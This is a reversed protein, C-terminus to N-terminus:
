DLDDLRVFVGIEIGYGNILGDEIKFIGMDDFIIIMDLIYDESLSRFVELSELKGVGSDGMIVVNVVDGSKFLINVMFGYILLFGRKIMILNYFILIMKKIYGFYDIKELYNIYGFMINNKEDDYFVIKFEEGEDKVGFVYVIDLKRGRIEESRVMEFLNCLMIGYEMFDRYFYIFIFLGGIKVLYCFWYDKNIDVYKLLNQDVEIFMGDRINKKLYIIFLIELFIYDIFFIDELVEYGELRVWELEYIM